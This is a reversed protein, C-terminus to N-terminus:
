GGVTETVEPIAQLQMPIATAQTVTAEVTPAPTGSPLLVETLTAIPSLLPTATVPEDTIPPISTMTSADTPRVSEVPEQALRALATMGGRYSSLPVGTGPFTFGIDSHGRSNTNRL